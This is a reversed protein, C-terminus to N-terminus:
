TLKYLKVGNDLVRVLVKEGSVKKTVKKTVKKKKKTVKKEVEQKVEQEMIVGLEINPPSYALV